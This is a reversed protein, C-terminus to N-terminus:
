SAIRRTAPDGDARDEVVLPARDCVPCPQVTGDGHDAAYFWRDCSECFAWRDRM